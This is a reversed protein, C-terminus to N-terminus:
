RYHKTKFDELIIAECMFVFLRLYESQDYVDLNGGGGKKGEMVSGYRVRSSDLNLSRLEPLTRILTLRKCQRESDIRKIGPSLNKNKKHKM